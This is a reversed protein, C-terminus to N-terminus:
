KLHYQIFPAVIDQGESDEGSVYLVEYLKGEYYSKGIEEFINDMKQELRKRYKPIFGIYVEVGNCSM